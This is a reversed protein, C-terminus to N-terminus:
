YVSVGFVGLPETVPQYYTTGGSTCNGTGGITLGLATTGSFFPGGSDGPESCVTTRVLGTRVGDPFNVTQNVATTSGCRLGTTLGSRCVAQGALPDGASVIDQSGPYLHVSGPRPVGPDTYRVLATDEYIAATVGARHHSGRRRVLDIGGDHLARGDPLLLHERQWRQVRAPL